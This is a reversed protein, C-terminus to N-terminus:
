VIYSINFSESASCKWKKTSIKYPQIKIWQRACVVLWQQLNNQKTLLFMRIHWSSNYEASFTSYCAKRRSWNLTHLTAKSTRVATNSLIRTRRHYSATDQPSHNGSTGLASSPKNRSRKVRTASLVVKSEFKLLWEVLSMQSPRFELTYVAIGTGNIKGYLADSLFCIHEFTQLINATYLLESLSFRIIQLAFNSDSRGMGTATRIWHKHYSVCSM